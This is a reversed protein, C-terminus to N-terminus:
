IMFRQALPCSFKVRSVMPFNSFASPIWIKWIISVGLVLLRGPRVDRM